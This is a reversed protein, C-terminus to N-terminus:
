AFANPLGTRTMLSAGHLRKAVVALGEKPKPVLIPADTMTSSMTTGGLNTQNSVRFGRDDVSYRFGGELAVTRTEPDFGDGFSDLNQLIDNFWILGDQAAPVALEDLGQGCIAM